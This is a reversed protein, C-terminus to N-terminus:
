RLVSMNEIFFQQKKSLKLFFTDLKNYNMEKCVKKNNNIKVKLMCKITM